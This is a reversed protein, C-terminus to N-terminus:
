ASCIICLLKITKEILDILNSAKAKMQESVVLLAMDFFIKIIEKNFFIKRCGKNKAIIIFTEAIQM